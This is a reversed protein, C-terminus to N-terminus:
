EAIEQKIRVQEADATPPRTNPMDCVFTVGGHIAAESETRWEGKYELGPQRFHVHCDMIGPLVYLGEADLVQRASPLQAEDAIAAIKGDQIALGVGEATHTHTVIRANKIVLDIDAMQAPGM